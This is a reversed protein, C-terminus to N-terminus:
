RRHASRCLLPALLLLSGVWCGVMGFALVGGLSQIAPTRTLMLSGFALTTTVSTMTIAHCSAAMGEIMAAPNGRHRRAISMLFIGDDVGIGALLPLAITSVLNLQHGVLAMGALLVVMAFVAPILTLVVRGPHRYVVTLWVGVLVAAAILLRPLDQEITQKVKMSVLDMGTMAVGPLDALTSEVQALVGIRSEYSAFQRDFRVITLAATARSAEAGVANRPLLLRGLEPYRALTQVNPVRQAGLLTRLFAVYDEYAKMTFASDSIAARFDRIIRETDLQDIAARREDVRRPDPLLQALSLPAAVGMERLTDSRLRADLEHAKILLAQPSEAEIYVHGASLANPFQAEIADQTELPPSPQPHMVMMSPNFGSPGVIVLVTLAGALIGASLTVWLRGHRVISIMLPEFRVRMSAGGTFGHPRDSLRLLAPLVFLAGLFAGGLGFAGVLAFDRLAPVSSAAIAGFGILSTICAAGLAPALTASRRAAELPGQGRTRRSKYHSIYHICYDIGLGALIAGSAGTVPTMRQTYFAFLGFGVLIGAAVPLFTIPFSWLNRYAVLFLLQLLVISVVVSRMMDRRIVSASLEAIPYAGGYQVRLSGPSANDVVGRMTEMFRKTFPIESAPTAVRIRVLLTRGDAGIFAGRQQDGIAPGSPRMAELLLEHLRLPDQLIREGLADATPSAAAILTENRRIQARIRDTSLRQKMREFQSDNLYFLGAPAMQERMFRRPLDNPRYSMSLVMGRAVDDNQISRELRDAFDLMQAEANPADEPARVLLLLSDAASFDNLLRVLARAAPTDRPFMPELSPVPQIRSASLAALAVCLAAVVLIRLPRRAPFLLVRQLFSSEPQDM